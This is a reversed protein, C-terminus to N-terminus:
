LDVIMSVDKERSSRGSCGKDHAGHGADIVVTRLRNDRHPRNTSFGSFIFILAASSFLVINRGVKTVNFSIMNVKCNSCKFNTLDSAKVM